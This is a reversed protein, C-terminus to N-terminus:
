QDSFDYERLGLNVSTAYMKYFGGKCIESLGRVGRRGRDAGRKVEDDGGCQEAGVLAWMAGEGVRRWWRREERVGRPQWREERQAAAV